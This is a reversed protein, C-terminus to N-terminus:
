YNKFYEIPSMQGIPIRKGYPTTSNPAYTGGILDAFMTFKGDDGMYYKELDEKSIKEKIKLQEIALCDLSLTAHNNQLQLINKDLWDFYDQNFCHRGVGRGIDKYGLVLIKFNNEKLWLYDEPRTIGAITHIIVRNPSQNAMKLMIEKSEVDSDYSIGLGYISCFPEIDSCIDEIYERFEKKRVLEKANVTINVIIGGMSLDGFIRGLLNIDVCSLAGGGFAIETGPHLYDFFMPRYKKYLEMTFVKKDESSNESCFPCGIDCRDSIKCDINEPFEPKFETEGENLLRIKTGDDFLLVQYNGNKYKRILRM